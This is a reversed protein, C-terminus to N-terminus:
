LSLSGWCSCLFLCIPLHLLHYGSCCLNQLDSSRKGFEVNIDGLIVYEAVGSSLLMNLTTLLNQPSSLITITKRNGAPDISKKKEFANLIPEQAWQAEYEHPVLTLKGMLLAELTHLQCIVDM